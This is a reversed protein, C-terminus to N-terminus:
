LYGRLKDLNAKLKEYRGRVEEITMNNEEILGSEYSIRFNEAIIEAYEDPDIRGYLKRESREM